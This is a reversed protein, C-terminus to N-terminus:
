WKYSYISAASIVSMAHYKKELKPISLLKHRTSVLYRTGRNRTRADTIATNSWKKDTEEGKWFM